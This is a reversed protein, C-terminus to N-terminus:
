YYWVRYPMLLANVGFAPPVTRIKASGEERNEYWHAILLRMAARVSAPVEQASVGAVYRIRIAASPWLTDSPWNLGNMLTIRGPMDDVDVAYQDTGLTRTIGDATKYTVYTVSQLPPMPIVIEGRRPWTDLAMNWQGAGLAAALTLERKRELPWDDLVLELTQQTFSRGAIQECHERAAVILASILADDDDIDVRLQLKAEDLSVPESDPPTIIKIM